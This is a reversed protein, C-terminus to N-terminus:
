LSRRLRELDDNSAAVLMGRVGERWIQPFPGDLTEVVGGAELTPLTALWARRSLGERAMSVRLGGTVNPLLPAVGIAGGAAVTLHVGEARLCRAVEAGLGYSVLLETGGEHVRAASWEGGAQAVEAGGGRVARILTGSQPLGVLAADMRGERELGVLVAYPGDGIVYRLTGDIPDIVITEESRNDAFASASPTDEEVEVQAWPLRERLAVLLIEQSVCDADTLAAKEPRIEHTKPRNRVRGELWRVAAMAQWVPTTLADLFDSPTIKRLRSHM